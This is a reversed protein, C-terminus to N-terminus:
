VVLVAPVVPVSEVLPLMTDSLVTVLLEILRVAPVRIVRGNPVAPVLLILDLTAPEMMEGVPVTVVSVAFVAVDMASPLAILRGVAPIMVKALPVPPAIGIARADPLMVGAPGAVTVGGEWFKASPLIDEVEADSQFRDVARKPGSPVDPISVM